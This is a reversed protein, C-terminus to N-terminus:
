MDANMSPCLMVPATVATIFTSLADDAIGHAIKGLMNATAPAVIVADAERAWEIHKIDAEDGGRFLSTSVPRGTLAAFTLPGVFQSANETMVVRVDAHQKVLLRVLLVTKYAAIGGTVGLVVKKDRLIASM